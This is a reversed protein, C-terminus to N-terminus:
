SEPSGVTCVIFLLFSVLILRVLGALVLCLNLRFLQLKVSASFNVKWTQFSPHERRFIKNNRIKWIEWAAIAFTEMFYGLQWETKSKQITDFFSLQHDWHIDL